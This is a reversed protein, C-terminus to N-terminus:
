DKSEKTTECKGNLLECIEKFKPNKDVLELLENHRKKGARYVNIDDSMHYYKDFSMLKRVFEIDESGVNEFKSMVLQYQEKYPFCLLKESLDQIVKYIGCVPVGEHDQIDLGQLDENCLVTYKGHAILGPVTEGKIKPSYEIAGLWPHDLLYGYAEPAIHLHIFRSGHLAKWLTAASEDVVCLDGPKIKTEYMFRLVNTTIEEKILMLKLKQNLKLFLLYM